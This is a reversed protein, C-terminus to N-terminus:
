PMAHRRHLKPRRRAPLRFRDLSQSPLRKRDDASTGSIQTPSDTLEPPTIKPGSRDNAVKEAFTGKRLPVEVPVEIVLELDKGVVKKQAYESAFFTGSAPSGGSGLFLSDRRALGAAYAGSSIGMARRKEREEEERQSERMQHRRVRGELGEFEQKRGGRSVSRGRREGEADVVSYAKIESTPTTTPSVSGMWESAVDKVLGKRVELVEFSSLPRVGAKQMNLHWNERMRSRARDVLSSRKQHPRDATWSGRAPSASRSFRPSPLPYTSSYSPSPSPPRSTRSPPSPSSPPTLMRRVQSPFNSVLPSPSPSPSPSPTYARYVREGTSPPRSIPSKCVLNVEYPKSGRSPCIASQSRPSVPKPSVSSRASGRVSSASPKPKVINQFGPKPKLDPSKDKPPVPPAQYAIYQSARAAAEKVPARKAYVPKQPKWQRDGTLTSPEAPPTDKRPPIPPQESAQEAEEAKCLTEYAHARHIVRALAEKDSEVRKHTSSSVAPIKIGATATHPNTRTRSASRNSHRQRSPQTSVTTKPRTHSSKGNTSRSRTGRAKDHCDEHEGHADFWSQNMYRTSM